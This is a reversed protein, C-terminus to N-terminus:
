KTTVSADPQAVNEQPVSVESLIHLVRTSPDCNTIMTITKDQKGAKGGSNFEVDVYGEKGPAIPQKPWNPVTCGCSGTASAIILDNNGINKFKFSYKVVEGQVIKGFDHSEEDFKMDTLKGIIDASIKKEGNVTETQNNCAMLSFVATLLVITKM